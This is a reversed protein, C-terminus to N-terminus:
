RLGGNLDLSQRDDIPRSTRQVMALIMPPLRQFSFESITRITPASVHYGTLVSIKLATALRLRAPRFSM